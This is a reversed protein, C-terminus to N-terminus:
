GSVATSAQNPCKLANIGFFDRQITAAWPSKEKAFVREYIKKDSFSNFRSTM